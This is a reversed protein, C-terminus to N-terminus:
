FRCFLIYELCARASKSKEMERRRPPRPLATSASELLAVVEGPDEDIAAPVPPAAGDVPVWCGFWIAVGVPVPAVFM